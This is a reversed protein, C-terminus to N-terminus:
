NHIYEPISSYGQLVVEQVIQFSPPSQLRWNNSGLISHPSWDRCSSRTILILTTGSTKACKEMMFSKWKQARTCNM